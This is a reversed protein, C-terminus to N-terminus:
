RERELNDHAGVVMASGGIVVAGIVWERQTQALVLLRAPSSDPGLCRQLVEGAAFRFALPPHGELRVEVVDFLLGAQCRALEDLEGVVLAEVAWVDLGAGDDLPQLIVVVETTPM